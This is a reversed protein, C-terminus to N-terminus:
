RLVHPSIHLVPLSTIAAHDLTRFLLDPIQKPTDVPYCLGLYGAGGEVPDGVALCTGLAM